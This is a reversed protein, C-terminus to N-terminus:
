SCSNISYMNGDLPSHCNEGRKYMYSRGTSFQEQELGTTTHHSDSHSHSHALHQAHVRAAVAPLPQVVDLVQRQHLHGALHLERGGRQGGAHVPAQLLWAQASAVHARHTVSSNHLAPCHACRPSSNHAACSWKLNVEAVETLQFTVRAIKISKM